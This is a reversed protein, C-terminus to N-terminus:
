SRGTSEVSGIRGPDVMGAAVKLGFDDEITEQRLMFRGRGFTVAFLRRKVVVLLVASCATNNLDALAPDHHSLEQLFGLWPPPTPTGVDVYLNGELGNSRIAIAQHVSKLAWTETTGPRLLYFRIQDLDAKATPLASPDGDFAGDASDSAADTSMTM